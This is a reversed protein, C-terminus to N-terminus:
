RDDTMKIFFKVSGLREIDIAVQSCKVINENETKFYLDKYSGGIIMKSAAENSIQVYSEM